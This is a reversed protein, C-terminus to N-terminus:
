APTGSEELPNGHSLDADLSGCDPCRAERIVLTDPDIREGNLVFGNGHSEFDRRLQEGTNSGSNERAPEV